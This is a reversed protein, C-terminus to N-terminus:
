GVPAIVVPKPDGDHSQARGPRRGIASVLSLYILGIVQLELGHIFLQFDDFVVISYLQGVLELQCLM